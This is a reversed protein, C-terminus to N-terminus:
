ASQDRVLRMWEQSHGDVIEEILSRLQNREAQTLSAKESKKYVAILYLPMNLDRFYYIIRVGGRKGRGAIKWRLKRVGGAGPIVDGAEPHLALYQELDDVESESWIERWIERADRRFPALHAFRVPYDVGHVM